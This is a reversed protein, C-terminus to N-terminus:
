IYGTHINDMNRIKMKGSERQYGVLKTKLIHSDTEIKYTLEKRDNKLNGMHTVTMESKSKFNYDILTM